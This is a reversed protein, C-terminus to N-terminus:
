AISDTKLNLSIAKFESSPERLDKQGKVLQLESARMTRVTNLKPNTDSALKYAALKKARAVDTRQLMLNMSGLVKELARALPLQTPKVDDPSIWSQTDTLGAIEAQERFRALTLASFMDGTGVFEGEIVPVSIVFKRATGQSTITSGACFMRETAESTGPFTVSTIVIHPVKYTKHLTDLALDLTSLSDIKIGCLLETEFQNPTILDAHPVLSKYVPVVKESVYLKGCDGMVPDLVWFLKGPKAKNVEKLELAIKGVSEVGDAGPVYGTLLMTYEEMIESNKLGQWLEDIQDSATKYGTWQQYGTHNSFQVTNLASVELGLTQLVFTTVSNGVYSLTHTCSIPISTATLIMLLQKFCLALLLSM